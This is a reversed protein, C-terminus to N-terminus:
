WSGWAHTGKAAPVYDKAKAVVSLTPAETHITHVSEDHEFFDNLVSALAKVNIKLQLANDWRYGYKNAISRINRIDHQVIGLLVSEKGTEKCWTVFGRATYPLSLAM